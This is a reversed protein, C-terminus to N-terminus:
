NASRRCRGGDSVQDRGSGHWRPGGAMRYEQQHFLRQSRVLQRSVRRLLRSASGAPVSRGASHALDSSRMTQGRIRADSLSRHRRSNLEQCDIHGSDRCRPVDACKCFRGSSARRGPRAAPHDTIVEPRCSGESPCSPACCSVRECVAHGVIAAEARGVPQVSGLPAPDAVRLKGLDRCVLDWRGRSAVV